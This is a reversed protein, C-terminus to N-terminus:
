AEGTKLMEKKAEITTLVLTVVELPFRPVVPEQKKLLLKFGVIFIMLFFFFAVDVTMLMM